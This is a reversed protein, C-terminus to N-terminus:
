IYKSQTTATSLGSVTLTYEDCPLVANCTPTGTAQSSPNAVLYPGGTFTLPGSADTLVGGAPTTAAFSFMTLSIGALCLILACIVRPHFFASETTNKKQM